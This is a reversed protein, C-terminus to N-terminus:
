ADDCPHFPSGSNIVSDVDYSYATMLNQQFDMVITHADLESNEFEVIAKDVLTM